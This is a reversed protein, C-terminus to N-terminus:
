LKSFQSCNPFSPIETQYHFKLRQVGSMEKAKGEDNTYGIQLNGERSSLIRGRRTESGGSCVYGVELTHWGSSLSFSVM